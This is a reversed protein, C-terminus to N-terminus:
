KIKVNESKANSINATSPITPTTSPSGTAGSTHIHTNFDQKLQNFAKELEEFRTASYQNGNLEINGNNTLKLRAKESRGNEDTSFLHFEGDKAEKFGILAGIVYTGKQTRISILPTGDPANSDIGFNSADVIEIVDDKGFRNSQYVRRNFSNYLTKIKKIITIM